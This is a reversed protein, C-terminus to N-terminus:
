TGAWGPSTTATDNLAVPAGCPQVQVIADNYDADGSGYLDEFAPNVYTITGDPATMFIADSSREIGLKFKLEDQGARVSEPDETSTSAMSKTDTRVIQM